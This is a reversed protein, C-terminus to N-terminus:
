GGNSIIRAFQYLTEKIANGIMSVVKGGWRSVAVILDWRVIAFLIVTLLLALYLWPNVRGQKFAMERFIQDDSKIEPNEKRNKKLTKRFNRIKKAKERKPANKIHVFILLATLLVVIVLMIMTTRNSLYTVTYM